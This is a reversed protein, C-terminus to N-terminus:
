GSFPNFTATSSITSGGGGTILDVFPTMLYLRTDDTTWTGGSTWSGCKADGFMPHVFASRSIVDSIFATGVQFNDGALFGIVYESGPTLSLPSDFTISNSYPAANYRRDTDYVYTMTETVTNGSINGVIFSASSGVNILARFLLGSLRVSSGLGTPVTFRWGYRTTTFAYTTSQVISVPYGYANTANRVGGLFGDQRASGRSSYPINTRNGHAENINGLQYNLTIQNTSASWTGAQAIVTACIWQGRTVSVTSGLSIWSIAGTAGAYNLSTTVAPDSSVTTTALTTTGPNGSADVDTLRFTLTGPNGTRSNLNFGVHTITTAEPMQMILNYQQGTGSIVIVNFSSFIHGFVEGGCLNLPLGRM